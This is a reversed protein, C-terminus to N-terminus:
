PVIRTTRTIVELFQNRSAELLPHDVRLLVYILDAECVRQEGRKGTVRVLASEEHPSVMDARLTLADGPVVFEHFRAKVSSLVCRPCHGLRERLSLELFAGGLQAMAEILLTGPYVPHGPFHEDFCDDALSICKTGIAYSLHKLEDIRDILFYRV